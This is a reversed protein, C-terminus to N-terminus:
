PLFFPLPGHCLIIAIIINKKSFGLSSFIFVLSFVLIILSSKRKRKLVAKKPCIYFFEVCEIKTAHDKREIWMWNVDLSPGFAKYFPFMSTPGHLWVMSFAMKLPGVEHDMTYVPGLNISSRYWIWITGMVM